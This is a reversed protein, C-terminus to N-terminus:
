CLVKDVRVLDSDEEMVVVSRSKLERIEEKLEEIEMRQRLVLERQDDQHVLTTSPPQRRFLNKWIQIDGTCRWEALLVKDEKYLPNLIRSVIGPKSMIIDWASLDQATREKESNFSFTTCRSAYVEDLIELM